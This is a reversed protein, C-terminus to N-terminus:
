LGCDPNDASIDCSAHCDPLAIPELAVGPAPASQISDAAVTVCGLEGDRCASCAIDMLGLLDCPTQGDITPLMDPPITSLVIRGSVSLTQLASLDDSLQGEFHLDETQIGNALNFDAPGFVFRHDETVSVGAMAVTRSCMDQGGAEAALGLMLEITEGEAGTVGIYFPYSTPFLALAQDVNEPSTWNASDMDVDWTTGVAPVAVTPAPPDTPDEDCAGLALTALLLTSVAFITHVPLHKM